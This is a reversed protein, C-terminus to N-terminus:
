IRWCQFCTMNRSHNITHLLHLKALQSSPFDAVNIDELNKDAECQAFIHLMAFVKFQVCVVTGETYTSLGMTAVGVQLTFM